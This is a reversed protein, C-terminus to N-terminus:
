ICCSITQPLLTHTPPSKGGQNRVSVRQVEQEEVKMLSAEVQAVFANSLHKSPNELGCGQSDVKLKCTGSNSLSYPRQIPMIRCLIPLTCVVLPASDTTLTACTEMSCTYLPMFCRWGLSPDADTSVAFAHWESTTKGIYAELAVCPLNRNLDKACKEVPNDKRKSSLQLVGKCIWVASRQWINIAIREVLRPVMKGREQLHRKSSSLNKIKFSTLRDM